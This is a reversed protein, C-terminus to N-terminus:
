VHRVYQLRRSYIYESIQQQKIKSKIYKFIHVSNQGRCKAVLALICYYIPICAVNKRGDLDQKLRLSHAFRCWWVVLTLSADRCKGLLAGSRRRRRVPGRFLYFLTVHKQWEVFSELNRFKTKIWIKDQQLTIKCSRIRTIKFSLLTFIHLDSFYSCRLDLNNLKYYNQEFLFRILYNRTFTCTVINLHNRYNHLTILIYYLYNCYRLKIINLWTLNRINTDIKRWNISFM